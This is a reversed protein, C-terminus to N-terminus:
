TSRFSLDSGVTRRTPASGTRTQHTTGNEVLVDGPVIANGSGNSYFSLQSSDFGSGPLYRAGTGNIYWPQIGWELWLWRMVLEVCQWEYEGSGVTNGQNDTFYVLNASGLPGCATLNGWSALSSSGPSNGTDCM